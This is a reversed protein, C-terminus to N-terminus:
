EWSFSFRFEIYGDNKDYNYATCNTKGAKYGASESNWKSAGNGWPWDYWECYVKDASKSYSFRLKVADLDDDPDAGSDHEYFHINVYGDSYGDKRDIQITYKKAHDYGTNSHTRECDFCYRKKAQNDDDMSVYASTTKSLSSINNSGSTFMNSTIDWYFESEKSGDLDLKDYM